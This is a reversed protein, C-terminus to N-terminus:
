QIGGPALEVYLHPRGDIFLAAALEEETAATPEGTTPNARHAACEELLYTHLEMRTLGTRALLGAVSVNRLGRERRLHDYANEVRSRVDPTGNPSGVTSSGNPPDNTTSSSNAPSAAPNRVLATEVEDRLLFLRNQGNKLIFAGGAAVVKKLAEPLAARVVSPLKPFADWLGNASALRLTLSEGGLARIADVALRLALVKADSGDGLCFTRRRGLTGFKAIRGESLLKNMASIQVASPKKSESPLGLLARADLWPQKALRLREVIAASVGGEDGGDRAREVVVRKGGGNERM